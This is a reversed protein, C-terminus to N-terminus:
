TAVLLDCWVTKGDDDVSTGWDDSLAGVLRLGWGHHSKTSEPDVEPLHRDTDSVGMRLRVGDFSLFLTLMTKAHRVGNSVLETVLLLVADEAGALGWDHLARSTLQRAAAASAM